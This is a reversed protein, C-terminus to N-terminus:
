DSRRRPCCLPSSRATTSGWGTAWWSWPSSRWRHSCGALTRLSGVWWATWSRGPSRAARSLVSGLGASSCRKCDTPSPRDWALSATGTTVSRRTWAAQTWCSWCCGWRNRSGSSTFPPRESEQTKWSKQYIKMKLNKRSSIYIYAVRPRVFSVFCSSHQVPVM